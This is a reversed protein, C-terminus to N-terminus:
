YTPNWLPLEEWNLPFGANVQSIGELKPLTKMHNKLREAWMTSPNITRLIYQIMAASGYLRSQAHVDAALHDLVPIEGLLTPTIRDTPSRNWLRSHHACINRVHNLNRAASTLLRPRCFQYKKALQVRDAYKLGELVVSLMGFDWLEVAIWLPPDEGFYKTKFHKVFEEKSKRFGKDLRKLWKQHETEGMSNEKTFAYDFEKPSRHALPSRKGLLLAIDVRLAVEIREIADMIILRLRKDFVYLDMVQQFSTEERFDDEVIVIIKGTKPDPILAGTVPNANLHSKRFPYWYGSLRYYGIRELCALASAEDSILLGRGQLLNM